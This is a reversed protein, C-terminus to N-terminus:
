GIPISRHDALGSRIDAFSVENATIPELLPVNVISPASLSKCDDKEALTAYNGSEDAFLEILM